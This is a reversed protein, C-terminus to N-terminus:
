KPQKGANANFAKANNDGGIAEGGVKTRKADLEFEERLSKLQNELQTDLAVLQLQKAAEHLSKLQKAEAQQPLAYVSAAIIISILKM